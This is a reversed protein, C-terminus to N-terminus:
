KGNTLVLLTHGAAARNPWYIARRQREAAM